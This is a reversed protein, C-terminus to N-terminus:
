RCWTGNDPVRECRIAGVLFAWLDAGNGAPVNSWSQVHGAAPFERLSVIDPEAEALQESPPPV